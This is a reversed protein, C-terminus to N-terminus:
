KPKLKDRQRKEKLYKKLQFERLKEATIKNETKVIRQKRIIKTPEDFNFKPVESSANINKNKVDSRTVM